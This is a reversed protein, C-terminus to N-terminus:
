TRKRLKPIWLLIPAYLAISFSYCIVFSFSAYFFSCL